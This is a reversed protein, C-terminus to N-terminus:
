LDLVFRLAVDLRDTAAPSLRAIPGRLLAVPVTQLRDAKVWGDRDLGSEARTVPVRHPRPHDDPPAASTIPCLVVTGSRSLRDAQVIVAPRLGAQVPGGVAPFEVVFIDGRRPGAPAAARGISVV